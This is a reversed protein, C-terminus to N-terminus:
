FRYLVSFYCFRNEENLGTKNEQKMRFNVQM